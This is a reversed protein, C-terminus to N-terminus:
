IIISSRAYLTLINNKVYLESYSIDNCVFCKRDNQPTAYCRRSFGGSPFWIIFGVCSVKTSAHFFACVLLLTLMIAGSLTIEYACHAVCRGSPVGCYLVWALYKQVQTSSFSCVLLLTLMIAQLLTIEFTCHAVRTRYVWVNFYNYHLILM